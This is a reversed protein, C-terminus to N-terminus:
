ATKAVLGVTEQVIMDASVRFAYHGGFRSFARIAIQGGNRGIRLEVYGIIRWDSIGTQQVVMVLHVTFTEAGVGVLCSELLCSYRSKSVLKWAEM